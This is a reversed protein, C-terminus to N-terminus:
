PGTPPPPPEPPRPPIRDRGEREWERATDISGAYKGRIRSYAENWDGSRSELPVYNLIQLPRRYLKWVNPPGYEGGAWKDASKEWKVAMEVAWSPDRSARRQYRLRVALGMLPSLTNEGLRTRVTAGEGARDASPHSQEAIAVIRTRSWLSTM